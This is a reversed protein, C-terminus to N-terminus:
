RDRVRVAVSRLPQEPTNRVPIRIMKPRLTANIVSWSIPVALATIISILVLSKYMFVESRHPADPLTQVAINGRKESAMHQHIRVREIM